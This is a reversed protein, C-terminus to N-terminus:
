FESRSISIPDLESCPSSDNPFLTLLTENAAAALEPRTKAECLIDLIVESTEHTKALVRVLGVMLVPEWQTALARIVQKTGFSGYHDMLQRGAEVRLLAPQDSQFLIKKLARRAITNQCRGLAALSERIVHPDKDAHRGRSIQALRRSLKRSCPKAIRRLATRRVEPWVNKQSLELWSEWHELTSRDMQEFGLISIRPSQATFLRYRANLEKVQAQPLSQLALWGLIEQQQNVIQNLEQLYSSVINTLTAQVQPDHHHKELGRIAVVRQVFPSQPDAAINALRRAFDVDSASTLSARLSLLEAHARLSSLEAQARLSPLEAQTQRSLEHRIFQQDLLEIFQAKQQSSQSMQKRLHRHLARRISLSHQSFKVLLEPWQNMAANKVLDEVLHVRLTESLRQDDVLESLFDTADSGKARLIIRWPEVVVLQQSPSKAAKLDAFFQQRILDDDIEKAISALLTLLHRRESPPLSSALLRERILEAALLPYSELRARAQLYAKGRQELIIQLDAEAHERRYTSMDEASSGKLELPVIQQVETLLLALILSRMM